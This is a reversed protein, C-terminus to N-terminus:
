YPARLDKKLINGSPKRPLHEAFDVSKPCKFSAIRDRSWNISDFAKLKEGSVPVIIAKVAQSWKEDPVGIVAGEAVGPHGFIANKVEASGCFETGSVAVGRAIAGRGFAEDGIDSKFDGIISQLNM